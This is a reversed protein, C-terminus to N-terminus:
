DVGTPGDSPPAPRPAPRPVVVPPRPVVPPSPQVPTVPASRSPTGRAPQVPSAVSRKPRRPRALARVDIRGAPLGAPPVTVPGPAAVVETAGLDRWPDDDPATAQAVGLGGVAGLLALAGGLVASRSM